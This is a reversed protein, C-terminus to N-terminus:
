AGALAPEHFAGHDVVDLAALQAASSTIIQSPQGGAKDVEVAVARELSQSLPSPIRVLALLANIEASSISAVEQLTARMEIVPNVLDRLADGTNVCHCDLEAGFLGNIEDLAKAAANMFHQKANEVHYLDRLHLETWSKDGAKAAARAHDIIDSEATSLREVEAIASLYRLAGPDLDAPLALKRMPLAAVHKKYDTIKPDIGGVVTTAGAQTLVLAGAVLVSGTIAVLGAKATGTATSPLVASVALGGVMAAALISLGCSAMATGCAVKNWDITLDALDLGAFDPVNGGGGIATVSPSQRPPNGCEGVLWPSEPGPLKALPNGGLPGRWPM